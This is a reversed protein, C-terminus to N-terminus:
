RTETYCDARAVDAGLTRTFSVCASASAMAARVRRGDATEIEAVHYVAAPAFNSYVALAALIAAGALVYRRLPTERPRAAKAAEAAQAAKATARGAAREAIAAAKHAADADAIAKCHACHPVAPADPKPNRKTM